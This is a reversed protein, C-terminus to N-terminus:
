VARGAGRALHALRAGATGPTEDAADEVRGPRHIRGVGALAALGRGAGREPAVDCVARAAARGLHAAEACADRAAEDAARDPASAVQIGGVVTLAALGRGARRGPA